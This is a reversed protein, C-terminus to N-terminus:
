SGSKPLLGILEVVRISENRDPLEAEQITNDLIYEFDTERHGLHGELIQPDRSERNRYTGSLSLCMTMATIAVWDQLILWAKFFNGQYAM